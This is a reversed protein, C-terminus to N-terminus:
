PTASEATHKQESLKLALEVQEEPTLDTDSFDYYTTETTIFLFGNTVYYFAVVGALIAIVLAVAAIKRRTRRRAGAQWRAVTEPSQSDLFDRAAQEPTGGLQDAVAAFDVGPGGLDRAAAAVYRAFYARAEAGPLAAAARRVFQKQEREFM